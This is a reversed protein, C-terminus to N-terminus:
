YIQLGRVRRVANWSHSSPDVFDIFKEENRCKEIQDKRGEKLKILERRGEDLISKCLPEEM